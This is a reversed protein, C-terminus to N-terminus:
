MEKDLLIAKSNLRDKGKTIITGIFAPVDFFISIRMGSDMIEDKVVEVLTKETKKAKTRYRM